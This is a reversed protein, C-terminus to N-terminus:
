RHDSSCPNGALEDRGLQPDPSNRERREVTVRRGVRETASLTSVANLFAGAPEPTQAETWGTGDWHAAVSRYGQSVHDIIGVAWGDNCRDADVGSM